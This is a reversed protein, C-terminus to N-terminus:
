EERFDGVSDRASELNKLERIAKSTERKITKLGIITNSIFEETNKVCLEKSNTMFLKGRKYIGKM